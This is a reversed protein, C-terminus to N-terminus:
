PDIRQSAGRRFVFIGDRSILCLADVGPVCSMAACSNFASGKNSVSTSVAPPHLRHSWGMVKYVGSSGSRGLMVAGDHIADNRLLADAIVHVFQEDFPSGEKPLPDRPMPSAFQPMSGTYFCLMIPLSLGDARALSGAVKALNSNGLLSLKDSESHLSRDHKM